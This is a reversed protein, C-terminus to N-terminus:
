EEDEEPDLNAPEGLVYAQMALEDGAPSVFAPLEGPGLRLVYWWFERVAEAPSEAEIPLDVSVLWERRDPPPRLRSTVRGFHEDTIPTLAGGVDLENAPQPEDLLRRTYAFALAGNEGRSLRGVGFIVPPDTAAVVLAPDGAAPQPGAAVPATLEVTEHHVLRQAAYQEAPVVVVWCGV